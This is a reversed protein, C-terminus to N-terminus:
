TAEDGSERHARLCTVDVNAAFEDALTLTQLGRDILGVICLQDALVVDVAPVEVAVNVVARAGVDTALLCRQDLTEFALLSHRPQFRRKRRIDADVTTRCGDVIHFRNRYNRRDQAAARVPKGADSPG